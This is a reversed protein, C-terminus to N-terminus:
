LDFKNKLKGIPSEILKWSLLAVLYTILLYIVFLFYKNDPLPIHLKSTLLGFFTPIPKHFLYIGYSIKGINQLLKLNLIPTMFNHVSEFCAFVFCVSMINVLLPLVLGNSVNLSTLLLSGFLAFILFYMHYKKLFFNVHEVNYQIFYALLAGSGLTDFNSLTVGKITGIGHHTLSLWYRVIIGTFMLLLILKLEHKKPVSLLIIPWILYFQEEVALSWSHNLLPSQWGKFYFLWNQTYTFYYWEDGKDCIWLGLFVSFGFMVIIMLYYIPFLRLARKFIFNKFLEWISKNLTNKQNLLISTILFGSIVFFIPVGNAGYKFNKLKLELTYHSVIVMLAAIARLADLKPIYNLQKSM